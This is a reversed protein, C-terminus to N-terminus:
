AGGLAKVIDDVSPAGGARCAMGGVKARPGSVDRGGVLITPSPHAALERPTKPNELDWEGWRSNRGVLRCAARLNERAAAVHPCGPFFVLDIRGDSTM